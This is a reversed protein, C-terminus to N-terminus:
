TFKNMLQLNENNHNYFSVPKHAIFKKIKIFMIVMAPHIHFYIILWLTITTISVLDFLWFYAFMM